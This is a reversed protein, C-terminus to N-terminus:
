SLIPSQHRSFWFHSGFMCDLRNLPNCTTKVVTDPSEKSFIALARSDPRDPGIGVDPLATPNDQALSGSPYKSKSAFFLEPEFLLFFFLLSSFERTKGVFVIVFIMLFATLFFVTLNHCFCQSTLISPFLWRFRLWTKKLTQCLIHSLLKGTLRWLFDLAPLADKKCAM